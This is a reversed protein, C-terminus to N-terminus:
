NGAATVRLRMFRKGGNGKPVSAKVTELAGQTSTIQQNVTETSWSGVALSESWEVQYTTGNERAGTSRTYTYELNAGNLVLSAPLTGSANPNLGLAYELLNSLGDGDPDASDAASALSDYSGFNTFRWLEQHTRTITTIVEFGRLRFSINSDAEGFYVGFAQATGTFYQSYSATATDLLSLGSSALTAPDYKYWGQTTGTVAYSTGANNGLCYEGTNMDLTYALAPTGAYVGSAWASLWWQGTTDQIAARFSNDYRAPDTGSTGLALAYVFTGSSLKTPVVSTYGLFTIGTSTNPVSSSSAGILSVEGSSGNRLRFASGNVSAFSQGANQAIYNMGPGAVYLNSNLAVPRETTYPATVTGTAMPTGTYLMTTNTIPAKSTYNFISGVANVNSYSSGSLDAASLSSSQGSYVNGFGTPTTGKTGTRYYTNVGSFWDSTSTLTSDSAGSSVAYQYQTVVDWTAAFSNSISFVLAAVAPIVSFRCFNSMLNFTIINSKPPPGNFSHSSPIQKTRSAGSLALPGSRLAPFHPNRPSLPRFLHKPRDTSPTEAVFIGLGCRYDSSESSKVALNM